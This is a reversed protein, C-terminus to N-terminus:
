DHHTDPMQHELIKKIKILQYIQWVKIIDLLLDNEYGIIQTNHM